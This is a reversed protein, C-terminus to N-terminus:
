VLDFKMLLANSTQFRILFINYLNAASEPYFHSNINNYLGSTMYQNPLASVIDYSM